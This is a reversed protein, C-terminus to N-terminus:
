KEPDAPETVPDKQTKQAEEFLADLSKIAQAAKKGKEESRHKVDDVAHSAMGFVGAVDGAHAYVLYISVLIILTSRMLSLSKKNERVDTRKSVVFFIFLSGLVVGLSILLRSSFSVREKGAAKEMTSAVAAIPAEAAKNVVPKTATKAEDDSTGDNIVVATARYKEPVSQLNDAFSVVGKDNVYKYFAAFSERAFLLALIALIFVYVIRAKNM